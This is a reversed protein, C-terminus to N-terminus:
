FTLAISINETSIIKFDLTKTTYGFTNLAFKTFLQVVFYDTCIAVRSPWWDTEM